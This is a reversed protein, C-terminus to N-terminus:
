GEIDYLFLVGKAFVYDMGFIIAAIVVVSVFVVTSYAVVEKRSPWAVKKLEGIVEKVFDRPKTRPRNTQPTPAPRAANKRQEQEKKMLRKYQRNM